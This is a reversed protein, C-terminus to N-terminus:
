FDKNKKEHQLSVAINWSLPRIVIIQPLFDALDRIKSRFERIKPPYFM